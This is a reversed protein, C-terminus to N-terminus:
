KLEFESQIELGKQGIAHVLSGYVKVNIRLCLLKATNKDMLFFLFYTKIFITFKRRVLASFSFFKRSKVRNSSKIVIEKISFYEDNINIDVTFESTKDAVNIMSKTTVTGNM